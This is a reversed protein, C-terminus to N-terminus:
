RQAEQRYKAALAELQAAYWTDIVKSDNGWDDSCMGSESEYPGCEAARLDRAARELADAKVGALWRDFEATRAADWEDSTSGMDCWIYADLVRGTTPTYSEEAM